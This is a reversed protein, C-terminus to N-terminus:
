PTTEKIVRGQYAIKLLGELQHTAYPTSNAMGTLVTRWSPSLDYVVSGSAFFSQTQGNLERGLHYGDLDAVVRLNTTVTQWAFVRGMVYGGGPIKLWRSEAGV